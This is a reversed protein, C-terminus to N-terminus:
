HNHGSGFESAIAQYHMRILDRGFDGVFDRWVLHIHNANNQTNDYEILFNSGQLRYYHPDGREMGGIWTFKIGDLGASRISDMRLQAIAEPQMSALEEVLSLLTRKQQSDLESYSIGSNELPSIEQQAATFIDRPVEVQLVAKAQQSLNLSNVLERGIDEEAALVRTGIKEGAKVEAPNSGFFQPSSAIGVGRVFTWNYALHHGEYRLAWNNDLGPTGFVTIFYLEPDRDFRGNVEIEALVSELGRVAEARQYGKASFVTRLLSEAAERQSDNMSRFPVGLRDRPIFHWNFREEDDFTYTGNNRQQVSLSSLFANTSDVMQQTLDIRSQQANVSFTNILFLLAILQTLLRM